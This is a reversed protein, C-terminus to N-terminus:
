TRPEGIIRFTPNSQITKFLESTSIMTILCLFEIDLMYISIPDDQVMHQVQNLITEPDKNPINRHMIDSVGILATIVDMVGSGAFHHFALEGDMPSQMAYAALHSFEFADVFEFAGCLSRLGCFLLGTGVTHVSLTICSPIKTRIL